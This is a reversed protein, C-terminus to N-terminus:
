KAASSTLVSAQDKSGSQLERSQEVYSVRQLQSMPLVARHDKDQRLTRDLVSRKCPDLASREGVEEKGHGELSRDQASWGVTLCKPFTKDQGRMKPHFPPGSLPLSQYKGRGSGIGSSM